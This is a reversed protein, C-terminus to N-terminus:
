RNDERYWQDFDWPIDSMQDSTFDHEYPPIAMSKLIDQFESENLGVYELFIELSHPKRGDLKKNLDVAASPEMAGKRVKFSNLQTIRSYGRKVYKIYDRSAQM